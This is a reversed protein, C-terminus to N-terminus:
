RRRRAPTVTADGAGDDDALTDRLAEVVQRRHEALLAVVADADRRRAARLLERHERRVRQRNRADNYYLSGYPDCQDYLVQIQRRMRPMELPELFALHFRRNAAVHAVIDTAAHSAELEELATEMRAFHEPALRPVARRLAESELLDRMLYLERLDSLRLAAVFYGHHPKYSVQGEGELVRLAERVPIRSVQLEEAIQDAFIQDGPRLEGHVIRKRLEALVAVHRTPPAFSSVAIM